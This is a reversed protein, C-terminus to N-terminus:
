EVRVLRDSRTGFLSGFDNRTAGHAFGPRDTVGIRTDIEQWRGKADRYHVPGASLEAEIRGDELEFFKGTATRKDVLEKVRKAKLPKGKPLQDRRPLVAPGEAREQDAGGLGLLNRLREPLGEGAAALM